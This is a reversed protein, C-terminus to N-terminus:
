GSNTTEMRGCKVHQRVTFRKPDRADGGRGGSVRFWNSCELCKRPLEDASVAMAMQLKLAESLSRAILESKVRAGKFELKLDYSLTAGTINLLQLLKGVGKCSPKRNLDVWIDLCTNLFHHFYLWYTVPEFNRCTLM